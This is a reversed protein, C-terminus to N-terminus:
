ERQWNTKFENLPSAYREKGDVFKWVVRNKRVNVVQCRSDTRFISKDTPKYIGTPINQITGCGILICAILVICIRM